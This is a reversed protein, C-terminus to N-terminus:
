IRWVKFFFARYRKTVHSAENGAHGHYDDDDMDEWKSEDRDMIKIGHSWDYPPAGDSDEDSEHCEDDLYETCHDEDVLFTASARRPVIKIKCRTDAMLGEYFVKDTGKLFKPEVMDDDNTAYQHALQFYHCSKACLGEVINNLKREITSGAMKRETVGDKSFVKCLLVVRVGATVPEVWHLCNGYFFVSDNVGVHHKITRMGQQVCLDGGTYNDTLGIVISGVYEPTDCADVHKDFFDGEKYVVVKYPEVRVHDLNTFVGELAQNKILDPNLEKIGNPTGMNLKDASFEISKRVEENVETTLTKLNGYTSVTGIGEFEDLSSEMGDKTKGLFVIKEDDYDYYIWAVNDHDKNWETIKFTHTIDNDCKLRKYIEDAKAAPPILSVTFKQKKLEPEMNRTQITMPGGMITGIAIPFIRPPYGSSFEFFTGFNGVKVVWTAIM